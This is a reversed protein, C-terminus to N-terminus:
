GGLVKKSEEKEEVPKCWHRFPWAVLLKCRPCLKDSKPRLNNM